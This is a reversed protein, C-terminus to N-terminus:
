VDSSVKWKENEYKRTQRIHRIPTQRIHRIPTQRIHRIPTQRIHRIPTQRINQKKNTQYTNSHQNNNILTSKGNLKSANTIKM